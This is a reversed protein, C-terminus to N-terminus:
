YLLCVNLFLCLGMSVSIFMSVYIHYAFLFCIIFLCLYYASIILMYVFMYNVIILVYVIMCLMFVRSMAMWPVHSYTTGLTGDFDIVESVVM